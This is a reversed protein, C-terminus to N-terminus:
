FKAYRSVIYWATKQIRAGLSIYLYMSSVDVLCGVVSHGILLAALVAGLMTMARVGLGSDVYVISTLRRLM